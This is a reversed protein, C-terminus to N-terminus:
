KTSIRMVEFHKDDWEQNYVNLVSIPEGPKFNAVNIVPTNKSCSKKLNDKWLDRM